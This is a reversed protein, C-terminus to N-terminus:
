RPMEELQNEKSYHSYEITAETHGHQDKALEILKTEPPLVGVPEAEGAVLVIAQDLKSELLTELLTSRLDTLLVDARDIVVFNLGTAEALAVQFAISFRFAESESLQRPHLPAGGTELDSILLSYPELSFGCSFSFKALRGTLNDRFEAWRDGVLQARIPGSPGFAGLVRECALVKEALDQKKGAAQDYQQKAGELRQVEALVGEGKAIRQDCEAIKADLDTVSCEAPLDKLEKVTREASGTAIVAKKHADLRQQATTPDGLKRLKTLEEGRVAVATEIVQEIETILTRSDTKALAQGCAYCTDPAERLQQVKARHADIKRTAEEIAAEIKAAQDKKGAVKRMRELEADELIDAKFQNFQERATALRKSDAEHDSLRKERARVQGDREKRIDAILGRVLTPDPADEPIEPATLEGLNKIDRNLTTRHKYFFDYIADAQTASAIESVALDPLPQTCSRIADFIEKPVAVPKSALAATLLSKQEKESLSLFHGSNLCAQIVRIPAIYEGIWARARDGLIRKQDAMVELTGGAPGRTACIAFSESRLQVAMDRHQVAMPGSSHSILLDAGRGGADTQRTTGTLLFEIADQISSKGSGNPGRVITIRSLALETKQHSRFNTLKLNTIRM